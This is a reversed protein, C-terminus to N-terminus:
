RLLGLVGEHQSSTSADFPRAEPFNFPGPLLAFDEVYGNEYKLCPTALRGTSRGLIAQVM